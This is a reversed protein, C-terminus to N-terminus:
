IIFVLDVIIFLHSIVVFLEIFNFINKTVYNWISLFFKKIQKWLHQIFMMIVLVCKTM